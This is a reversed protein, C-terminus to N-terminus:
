FLEAAGAGRGRRTGGALGVATGLGGARRSDDFDCLQMGLSHEVPRLCAGHATVLRAWFVLGPLGCRELDDACSIGLRAAIRVLDSLLLPTDQLVTHPFANKIGNLHKSVRAWTRRSPWYLNYIVAHDHWSSRYKALSTWARLKRVGDTGAVYWTYFTTIARYAFRRPFVM